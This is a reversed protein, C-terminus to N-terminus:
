WDPAYDPDYQREDRDLSDITKIDTDDLDLCQSEWNDRIHEEGTAKPISPIAKERHWALTVQAESVGHKAAIDQIEPVDLVAGNGLPAYAVPTIDHTACYDRLGRQPLLPHIEVQLASIPVDSAAQAEDLLGPSLNCAGIQDAVGDDHLDACARFTIEPDYGGSPWHVGYLLDVRDVDLRTLCSHVGEIVDDYSYGAAFKPHLVKTALFIDERPVDSNAIGEGVAEENGYAEATDIHRYGIELATRVSERCQEHDTNRYTGLGLM